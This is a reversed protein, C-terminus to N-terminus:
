YPSVISLAFVFLQVLPAFNKTQGHDTDRSESSENDCACQRGSSFIGGCASHEIQKHELTPLM